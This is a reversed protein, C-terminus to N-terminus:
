SPSPTPQSTSTWGLKPSTNVKPKVEFKPEKKPTTSSKMEVKPKTEKEEKVKPTPTKEKVKKEEVKEPSTKPTKNEKQKVTKERILDLFEDETLQKTGMTKAKALKSEGAEEGVVLYKTNKSLSTTVKGGLKKIIEAMEERELSECVGTLVFVLGNLCNPSGEPIEKSGPNKAGGRSVFKKYAATKAAKRVEWDEQPTGPITSDNLSTDLATSANLPSAKPTPSKLLQPSAKEPTKTDSSKLVTKTKESGLKSLKSSLSKAPEPSATRLKKNQPSFPTQKLTDEFAKDRSFLVKILLIPEM